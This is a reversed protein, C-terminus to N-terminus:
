AELLEPWVPVFMQWQELWRRIAAELVDLVRRMNIWVEEDRNGTRVMELPPEIYMTYRHTEPSLVCYAVMMAADTKLALRVHGSPVRAPCGFFSFPEDLDSVPRDVAVSVVGGRRLLRIAQRLAASSLPTVKAGSRRRLENALQFGPPPNPLTLVQIEPAYTALAQGGLDFSGLHPFALLTGRGMRKLSHAIERTAKPFEVLTAREEPSLQMARYLDYYGRIAHYFVQRMTRNLIQPGANPGLVQSLNVQLSRYVAPKARCVVGTLLSALRYGIGEPIHQSLFMMLRLTSPSNVVHQLNM